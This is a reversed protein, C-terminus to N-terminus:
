AAPWRNHHFDHLYNLSYAMHTCATIIM